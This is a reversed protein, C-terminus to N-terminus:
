LPISKVFFRYGDQEMNAAHRQASYRNSFSISKGLGCASIWTVQYSYAAEDDTQNDSIFYENELM